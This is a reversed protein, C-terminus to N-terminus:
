CLMSLNKLRMFKALPQIRLISGDFWDQIRQRVVFASSKWHLSTQTPSETSEINTRLILCYRLFHREVGRRSWTSTTGVAVPRGAREQPVDVYGRAVGRQADFRRITSDKFAPLSTRRSSALAALSSSAGSSSPGPDPPDQPKSCLLLWAM